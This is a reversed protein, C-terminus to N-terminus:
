HVEGAKGGDRRAIQVGLRLVVRMEEILLLNLLLFELGLIALIVWDTGNM